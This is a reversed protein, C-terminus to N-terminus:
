IGRPPPSLIDAANNVYTGCSPVAYDHALTKVAPFLDYELPLHCLYLISIGRTTHDQDNEDHEGVAGEIGFVVELAFEVVSEIDNLSLDEAVHDPHMDRSDVSFNLLYIALLFALFNRTRSISQKAKM